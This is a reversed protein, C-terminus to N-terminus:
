TNLSDILEKLIKGQTNYIKLKKEADAYRQSNPHTERREEQLIKKYFNRTGRHKKILLKMAEVSITLAWKSFAKVSMDEISGRLIVRAAKLEQEAAEKM